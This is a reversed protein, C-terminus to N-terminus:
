SVSRAPRRSCPSRRTAIVTRKGLEAARDWVKAAEEKLYAFEEDDPIERVACRHLEIVELM